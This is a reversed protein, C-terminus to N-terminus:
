KRYISVIVSDIRHKKFVDLSLMSMSFIPVSIMTVPIPGVPIVGMAITFVPM